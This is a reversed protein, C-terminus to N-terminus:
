KMMLKKGVPVFPLTFLLLLFFADAEVDAIQWVTIGFSRHCCWGLRRKVIPADWGSVFSYLVCWGEVLAEALASTVQLISTKIYVSLCDKLNFILYNGDRYHELIAFNQGFNHFGRGSSRPSSHLTKVDPFGEFKLIQHEFLVDQIAKHQKVHFLVEGACSNNKSFINKTQVGTLNLKYM